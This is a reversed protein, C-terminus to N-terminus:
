FILAKGHHNSPLSAMGHLMRAEKVAELVQWWLKNIDSSIARYGDESTLEYIIEEDEDDDDLMDDQDADSIPEEKVHIQPPQQNVPHMENVFQDRSHPVHGRGDLPAVFSAENIKRKRSYKGQFTM